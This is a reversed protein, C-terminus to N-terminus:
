VGELAFAWTASVEAPSDPALSGTAAVSRHWGMNLAVFQGAQVPRATIRLTRRDRELEVSCPMRPTVPRCVIRESKGSPQGDPGIRALISLEAWAPLSVAPLEFVLPDGRRLRAVPLDDPVAPVQDERWTGAEIWGRYVVTGHVKNDALLRVQPPHRYFGTGDQVENVHPSTCAGVTMVVAAATVLWGIM